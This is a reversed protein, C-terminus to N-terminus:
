PVAFGERRCAVGVAAIRPGDARCLRVASRGCKRLSAGGMTSPLTVSVCRASGSGSSGGTYVWAGVGAGVAGACALAAIFTKDRRGLRTGIRQSSREVPM